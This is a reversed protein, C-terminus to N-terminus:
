IEFLTHDDICYYRISNVTIIQNITTASCDVLATTTFIRDSTEAVAFIKNNIIDIQSINNSNYTYLLRDIPDVSGVSSGSHDYFSADMISPNSSSLAKYAGFVLSGDVISIIDFAKQSQTQPNRM